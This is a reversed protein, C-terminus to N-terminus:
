GQSSIKWFVTTVVVSCHCKFHDHREVERCWSTSWFVSSGTVFYQSIRLGLLEDILNTNSMTLFFTWKPRECKQLVAELSTRNKSLSQQPFFFFGVVGKEVTHKGVSQVVQAM